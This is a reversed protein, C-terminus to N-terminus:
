KLKIFCCGSIQRAPVVKGKWDAPGASGKNQSTTQAGDRPVDPGSAVVCFRVATQSMVPHYKMGSMGGLDSSSPRFECAVGGFLVHLPFFVQASTAILDRQVRM